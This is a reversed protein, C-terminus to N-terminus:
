KNAVLDRQTLAKLRESLENLQEVDINKLPVVLYTAMSDVDGQKDKRTQVIVDDSQYAAM